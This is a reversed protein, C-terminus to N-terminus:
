AATSVHVWGKNGRWVFADEESTFVEGRYILRIGCKCCHGKLRNRRMAGCKPCAVIYPRRMEKEGEGAM